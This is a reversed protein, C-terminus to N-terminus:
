SPLSWGTWVWYLTKWFRHLEQLGEGFGHKGFSPFLTVPPIHGISVPASHDGGM